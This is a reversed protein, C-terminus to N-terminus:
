YRRYRAHVVRFWEIEPQWGVAIDAAARGTELGRRLQDTGALRDFTQAMIQFRRPALERAAALMSVGLEMPRLVTRDVIEVQVGSCVQTAFKSASPTFRAERFHVGPLRAANLREAWAAGDIWPAGITEFPRDTGRGESLNTGEFLVTGPYLAAASLTRINPSPSVWTLGTQDWWDGRRWGQLPVVTLDAGARLEANFLGALEGITLGYRMPIAAPGVFSGFRPDLVSGEVDLGNLPNPRDLVVVPVGQSAGARLVELLTTTYTCVRAGVDQLDYVLTDIGRLMAPTPRTTGDYLSFAPLGTQGDVEQGMAAGAAAEGRIGHEPSFLATLKWDESAHLLDITSQGQSDRGTQNTVLGLRRGALLGRREHLLVEIGPQVRGRAVLPSAAPGPVM